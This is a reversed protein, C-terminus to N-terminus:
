QVSSGTARSAYLSEWAHHRPGARRRGDRALVMAAAALGGAEPLFAARERLPEAIIHRPPCRMMWRPHVLWVFAAHSHRRHEIGCGRRCRANSAASGEDQGASAM